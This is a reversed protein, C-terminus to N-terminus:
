AEIFSHSMIWFDEQTYEYKEAKVPFKQDFLKAKEIDIDCAASEHYTWTKNQFAEQKIMYVLLSVPYKNGPMGIQFHKSSVFGHKVYNCPHGFIVIAPMDMEHVLEKTKSILLSGIGTRQYEPKVSIPGFSLTEIVQNGDSTVFSKTYIINGVIEDNVLAVYDLEKIYDEHSRMTHLLYHELCGPVHLNWFAERTILETARYDAETTRRITINMTSEKM